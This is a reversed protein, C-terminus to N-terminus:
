ICMFPALGLPSTASYYSYSSPGNNYVSIFSATSYPSRLWWYGPSPAPKNRYASVRYLDVQTGEGPKAYSERGFVEVESRLALKNDPVTLITSSNGGASAKVDFSRLHGRLWAPLAAEMAPLTDTYMESAGYGGANTGTANMRVGQGISNRFDLQLINGCGEYEQFSGIAIPVRQAPIDANGATFASLDVYRVDGVCWGGDAHLDIVGQKAATLMASVKEADGYCWSVMEVGGVTKVPTADTKLKYHIVGADGPAITVPAPLVTRDILFTFYNEDAGGPYGAGYLQQKMGIERVTVPASGTNTVTVAYSVWPDGGDHGATRTSQSVSISIGSTITDGLNYDLETPPTGDRGVSIGVGNATLSGYCTVSYPFQSFRCAHYLVRGTVDIVPPVGVGPSGAQLLMALCHKFNRTVM